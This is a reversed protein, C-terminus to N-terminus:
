EALATNAAMAVPEDAVLDLRVRQLGKQRFHLVGAAEYSLDIIRDEIIPGRDNIRVVVWEGTSLNTVKVRTGLPLTRHAATLQHMNYTEGSATARGEFYEGYWSARGVQYAKVRAATKPGPGNMPGPDNPRVPAAIMGPVMFALALVYHLVRRM